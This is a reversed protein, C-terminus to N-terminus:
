WAGQLITNLTVRNSRAFSQLADTTEKSLQVGTREYTTGSQEEQEASLAKGLAIPSTFGKLTRRWFEEAKTIDQQQLWHIYDRFPRTRPLRPKRGRCYSRYSQFLEKILLGESWGDMLIHHWTWILRYTEDTFQILVLRMLPPRTLDFGKLLDKSLYERLKEEQDAPSLGR